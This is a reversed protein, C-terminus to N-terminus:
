KMEQKQRHFFEISGRFTLTSISTKPKSTEKFM